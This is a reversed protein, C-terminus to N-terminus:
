APRDARDRGAAGVTNLTIRTAHAALVQVAQQHRAIVEYELGATRSIAEINRITSDGLSPDREWASARRRGARWRRTM